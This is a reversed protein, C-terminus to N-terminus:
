FVGGAGTKREPVLRKPVVGSVLLRVMMRKDRGNAQSIRLEETAIMAPEATLDALFNVLQEIQCDFNVAVQAVGYDNGLARVQGLESGRAEISQKRAVRRVLDLLQAQAQAATDAVILGKERVALDAQVKALTERHGPVISSLNRARELRREKTAISDATAAASAPATVGDGEGLGLTALRVVTILLAAGAILALRKDRDSLPAM